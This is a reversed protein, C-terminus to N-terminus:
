GGIGGDPRNGFAPNTERALTEAVLRQFRPLRALARDGLPGLIGRWRDLPRWVRPAVIRAQGREVARVLLHAADEPRLRRTLATPWMAELREALPDGDLSGHVLDTDVFGFHASTVGIGDAVLEVRLTRALAEVGAKSVAYPGSFAGNLFSYVSAVIVLRGGSAALHPLGAHVTNWVGTLNIGIVRDFEAKSTGAVTALKPAVGANAIVVDLGGLQVAATDVAVTLGEADTVDATLAVAATGLRKAAATVAVEDRDLLAVRAGREVAARATALGIGRAGGTILVRKGELSLRTM